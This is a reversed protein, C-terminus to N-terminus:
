LRSSRNRVRSEPACSLPEALGAAPAIDRQERQASEYRAMASVMAAQEEDHHRWPAGPARHHNLRERWAYAAAPPLVGADELARLGAEDLAGLPIELPHRTILEAMAVMPMGRPLDFACATGSAALDNLVGVGFDVLQIPGDATRFAIVEREGGPAHPGLSERITLKAWSTYDIVAPVAPPGNRGPVWVRAGRSRAWRTWCAAAAGEEDAAPGAVRDIERAVLRECKRERWLQEYAGLRLQARVASALTQNGRETAPKLGAAKWPAKM